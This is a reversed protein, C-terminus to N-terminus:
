AGSAHGAPAAAQIRARVQDTYPLLYLSRGAYFCLIALWLGHNGFLRLCLPLVLLFTAIALITSNRIPRTVNAGTFIGYYTLGFGASIPFLLGWLHIGAYSGLVEPLDTFIRATASGFSGLFIVMLAMFLLTWQTTRQWTARLLPMDQAGVSRGSFVSSANALGDFLYSCIFTIQLLVSNAALITTGFSASVRATVNFMILLCVTRIFLDGNSALVALLEQRGMSVRHLYRALTLHSRFFVFYLGLLMTTIQAILSAAAVGAVNWGLGWVFAIDLVMNLVNGFVQTFLTAKILAQGMLWGILVYNLLVFPAGWIMIHFYIAAQEHVDAAPDIIRIVVSWILGQLLIFSLGVGGALCFPRILSAARDEEVGSGLAMASHSTTSVRFFGFLWYITNMIVTGVAVGGIYSPSELRGVVATDVAGLLPQTITAIIFPIAIRLYERHRLSTSPAM